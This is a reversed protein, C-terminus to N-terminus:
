RRRFRPARIAKTPVPFAVRIGNEYVAPKFEDPVADHMVPSNRYREIHIHLGQSPESWTVEAVKQSRMPWDSFGNFQTFLKEAAANSVMNIFAYGFGSKSRFDIPLYIFNYLGCLGAEDMMKVVSDRSCNYPVNRLMVTTKEPTPVVHEDSIESQMVEVVSGSKPTSDDGHIWADELDGPSTAHTSVNSLIDELDKQCSRSTPTDPLAFETDSMARRRGTTGVGPETVMELFTHKVVLKADSSFM